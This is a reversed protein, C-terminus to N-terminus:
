ATENVWRKGRLALYFRKWGSRFFSNFGMDNYSDAAKIRGQDFLAVAEDRIIKWNDRLKALEPIETAPLIPRNPVASFWYM